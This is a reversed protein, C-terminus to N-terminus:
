RNDPGKLWVISTQEVGEQGESWTSLNAYIMDFDQADRLTTLQDIQSQTLKFVM